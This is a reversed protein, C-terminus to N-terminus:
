QMRACCACRSGCHRAVPAARRLLRLLRLLPWRSACYLPRRPVAPTRYAGESLAYLIYINFILYYINYLLIFLCRPGEACGGFARRRRLPDRPVRPHDRPRRRACACEHLLACYPAIPRLIRRTVLFVPITVRDGGPARVNTCYPAILRLLACHAAIHPPDRPVGALGTSWM